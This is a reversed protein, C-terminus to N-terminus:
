FHAGFYIGATNGSVESITEGSESLYAGYKPTYNIFTYRFGLFWNFLTYKEFIEMALVYGLQNKFDVDTNSGFRDVQFKPLFHYTLGGGLRLWRAQYFGLFDVPITGFRAETSGEKIDSSRFGIATQLATRARGTKFDANFGLHYSVGSNAKLTNGSLEALTDGGPSYGAYVSFGSEFYDGVKTAHLSPTPPAPPLARAPFVSCSLLGIVALQIVRLKSSLM